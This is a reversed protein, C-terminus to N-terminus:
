STKFSDLITTALSRESVPLTVAGTTTGNPETGNYVYVILGDTESVPITSTQRYSWSNPGFPGTATVGSTPLLLSPEPNGAMSRGFLACANITVVLQASSSPDIFAVIVSSGGPISDHEVWSSPVLIRQTGWTHETLGDQTSGLKTFLTTSTTPSPTAHPPGVPPNLCRYGGDIQWTGDPGQTADVQYRDSRVSANGPGQRVVVWGTRPLRFGPIERRSAAIAAAAAPTPAGGTSFRLSLAFYQSSVACHLVSLPIAPSSCGGALAGVIALTM